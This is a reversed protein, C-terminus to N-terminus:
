ETNNHLVFLFFPHIFIQAVNPKIFNPRGTRNRNDVLVLRRDQKHCTEPVVPSGFAVCLHTFKIINMKFVKSM